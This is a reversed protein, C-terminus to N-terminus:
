FPRTERELWKYGPEDKSLLGSVKEFCEHNYSNIWKREEPSILGTDILKTQIPVVTVHEFGLYDNDGFRNATEVKKVLLVNEIRIGFAGDEYYGPENTVTMGPEMKVDNYAIRLGIGHPGEHVNLYAGVGHGTGHRYDLGARWLPARALIDLIYGTTGFPFVVMDIAIHGQLVRTFADKERSSPTGFHLTRTVDTTGDLFQAGSDCLYMQNVDIIACSGHEPKYHIIAGNPGTSSITDFSLGVFNALQGRLKELEDAAEAESIVSKKNVLEDELWAFYRCLAAADRIHSQRFGELEAETKISKAVQVPSRAVTVFNDGGLAEKVALSCRFDIWVREASKEELKETKFVKLHDFIYEYPKVTVKSGFHAKVQDTIKRADTYLFAKDATVLAYSFFVPNYPIDSGRLNFLWAVEDLSSIVIGWCKAKELKQQLDAIKKEFHKGTFELGLVKIPNMPRAPRDEWITDVLNSTYVLTIGAATMSEQLEKVADVSIVEPDIAVRSGKALVQVIWESRSPVGPLGSKQLIWNSDLQQSAQLFYRGDTWLAAKDTTVVAVGASGTFGSIYARRSDCAALYESQHADESPVIFADVSHAKLQERLKALRSTTDTSVITMSLFSLSQHKYPHFIRNSWRSWIFM